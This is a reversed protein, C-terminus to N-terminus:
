AQWRWITVAIIVAIGIMTLRFGLLENIQTSTARLDYTTGYTFYAGSFLLAFGVTLGAWALTHISLNM